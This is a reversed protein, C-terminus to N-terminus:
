RNNPTRYGLRRGIAFVEALQAAVRDHSSAELAAAARRSERLALCHKLVKVKM